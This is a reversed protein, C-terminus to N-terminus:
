VQLKGMKPVRLKQEERQPYSFLKRWQQRARGVDEWVVLDPVLLSLRDVELAGSILFLPGIRNSEAVSQTMTPIPAVQEGRVPCPLM